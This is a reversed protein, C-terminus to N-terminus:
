TRFDQVQRSLQMDGAIPALSPFAAFLADNTACDPYPM